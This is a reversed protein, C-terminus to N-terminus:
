GKRCAMHKNETGVSEFDGEETGRAEGEVIAISSAIKPISIPPAM